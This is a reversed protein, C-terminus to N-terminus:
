EPDAFLATRRTTGEALFARIGFREVAEELEAEFLMRQHVGEYLELWVDPNDASRKIRGRVGACRLVEAQMAIIVPIYDDLVNPALKYQIFYDLM